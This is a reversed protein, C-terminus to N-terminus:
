LPFVLSTVLLDRGCLRCLGRGGRDRQMAGQDGAQRRLDAVAGFAAQVVARAPALELQEGARRQRRLRRRPHQRRGQEVGLLDPRQGIGRDLRVPHDGFQRVQERARWKSGRQDRALAPHDAALLDRQEPQHQRRLLRDMVAAQIGLFRALDEHAIAQDGALDVRAAGEDRAVQLVSACARPLPLWVAGRRGPPRRPSAHRAPIQSRM